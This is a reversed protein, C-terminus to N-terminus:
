RSIVPYTEGSRRPQIPAMRVCNRGAEKAAALAQEAEGVIADLTEHGAGVAAVGVSVTCVVATNQWDIRRESVQARIREAVDLAGMPDTHPLLVVLEEGGYRGILDAQRLSQASVEAIQRLVTDGCHQGHRDNVAKFHDVDIMLVAGDMGYRRIRAWEREASALFHRRTSIGTLTDQTALLDLSQGAAALRGTAVLLGRLLVVVALVLCTFAAVAGASWGGALTALGTVALAGAIIALSLAGHGRAPGVRAQLRILSDLWPLDQHRDTMPRLM